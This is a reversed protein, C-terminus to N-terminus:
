PSFAGAAAARTLIEDVGKMEEPSLHWDACKANAEVQEPKTAGAIVSGIVGLKLLEESKRTAAGVVHDYGVFMETGSARYKEFLDQAGNLDPPCLPKEVLIAQPAEDLCAMAVALHHDPPTGVCILDFEGVPVTDPMHLGIEADWKGYRGPYIEKEMRQLAAADVDCVVVECGLERAAHALHNGISGAGYIKVRRM